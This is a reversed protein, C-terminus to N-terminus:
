DRLNLLLKFLDFFMSFHHNDFIPRSDDRLFCCIQGISHESKEHSEDGFLCKQELIPFNTAVQSQPQPNIQFLVGSLRVM